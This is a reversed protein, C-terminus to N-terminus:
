KLGYFTKQRVPHWFDDTFIKELTKFFQKRYTAHSVCATKQPLRDLVEKLGAPTDLHHFAPLNLHAFRNQQRRGIDIVPLGLFPAEKIGCSSNGVLVDAQAMLANFDDYPLSKFFMFRPHNNYAEYAKLIVDHHLDNNPMIAIVNRGSQDLESLIGNIQARVTEASATTVPHYILLVFRDFLIGYHTKIDQRHLPINALSSNGVVYIDAPNEGLRQLVGRAHEDAVFFKHSLKSIAHRLSEDVSGSLDGAEIQCVPINNLMATFAASLAEPRDGHTFVFDIQDANLHRDFASIIHANEQATSSEMMDRDIVLHCTEGYCDIIEQATYGYKEQTHMGTIFIHVRINPRTLLFDIYPKIKGYDARTGSLFSVNIM